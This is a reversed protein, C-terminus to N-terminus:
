NHRSAERAAAQQRRRSDSKCFERYVEDREADARDRDERMQRLSEPEMRVRTVWGVLFGFSLAGFVMLATV